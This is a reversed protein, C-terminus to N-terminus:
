GCQWTFFSHEPRSPDRALYYLQGVDGGMMDAAEDSAVRARLSLRHRASQPHEPRRVLSRGHLLQPASEQYRGGRM